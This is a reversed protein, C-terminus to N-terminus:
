TTCLCEFYHILIHPDLGFHTRLVWRYSLFSSLFSFALIIRQALFALIFRSSTPLRWFTAGAGGGRGSRKRIQLLKLLAIYQVNVIIYLPRCLFLKLWIHIIESTCICWTWWYYGANRIKNKRFPKRCCCTQTNMNRSRLTRAGNYGPSLSHNRRPKSM